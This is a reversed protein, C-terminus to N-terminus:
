RRSRDLFYLTLEDTEIVKTKCLRSVKYTIRDIVQNDKEIVEKQAKALNFLLKTGDLLQDTKGGIAHEKEVEEDDEDIYLYQNDEKNPRPRQYSPTDNVNLDRMKNQVMHSEQWHAARTMERQHKEERHRTMVADDVAQARKKSTFPNGVHVAFMSRNLTQLEKAKDYGSLNQNQARDMNKEANRLRDGQEHMLGLTAQGNVIAGHLMNLSRDQSELTANRTSSLEDTTEQLKKDAKQEETLERLEGYGDHSGTGISSVESQGYGIVPKATPDSSNGRQSAYRDRSEGFLEDRKFNTSATAATDTRALGSHGSGSVSPRDVYPNNQAPGRSSFLSGAQGDVHGLGGYGGQRLSSSSASKEDFNRNAGYGGGSGLRDSGYGSVSVNPVSANHNFSEQNRTRNAEYGSGSRLNKSGYGSVSSNYSPPPQQTPHGPQPPASGGGRPNPPLGARPDNPLGHSSKNSFSSM